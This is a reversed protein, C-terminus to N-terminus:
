SIILMLLFGLAGENVTNKVPAAALSASFAFFTNHLNSCVVNLFTPTNLLQESSGNM